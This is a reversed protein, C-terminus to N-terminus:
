EKDSPAHKNENRKQLPLRLVFTTGNNVQSHVRIDGGMKKVIGYCISLGLGTGKGVPKTTFFPDFLHSLDEKPIGPGDDSVEVVIHGEEARASISLTGGKEEMADLANNILNLLVQQLETPSGEIFPLDAVIDTHIAIHNLGARKASITVVDEILENLRFREIKSDTKRAFSLLKHTIEKCRTGQTRIQRLARRVEKLNKSDKFEKEELLDDIWGAEEVMIAVPNNIEHAIGAALEGISALKGTQFMQENRKQKEKDAQQIRRIMRRSLSLANAVILLGIILVASLAVAVTKRLGSFVESARRGYVLIWDGKKLFGSIYLTEDGADDTRQVMFLDDQGGEQIGLFGMFTKEETKFRPPSGLQCAGARNMICAFGNSEMGIEKVVKSFADRDVVTRLIWDKGMGSKRVAMIIHAMGESDSYVDSVLHGTNMVERFWDSGSHWASLPSVPGAHAIRLGKEDIVELNSFVPGHQVQLAHLREQLIPNSGLQEFSLTDALLGIDALREKLFSDIRRRGQQFVEELYGKIEEHYSVRFQYLGVGTVLVVPILPGLVGIVFLTRVM